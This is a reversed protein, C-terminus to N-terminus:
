TSCTRPMRWSTARAHEWLFKTIRAFQERSSEFNAVATTVSYAASM